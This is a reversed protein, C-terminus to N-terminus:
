AAFEDLLKLFKERQVPKMIYDAVTGYEKSKEIDQENVSSSVMYIILPKDLQPLISKYAELFQWGDMVPMNIDLFLVDPLESQNNLMSKLYDIAQEGNYFALIKNEPNISELVKRATFQYIQDDDVLCIQLKNNPM